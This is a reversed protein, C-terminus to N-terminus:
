QRCPGGAGTDEKTIVESDVFTVDGEFAPPLFKAKTHRVFDDSAEM